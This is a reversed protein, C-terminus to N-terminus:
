IESRSQAWAYTVSSFLLRGWRHELIWYFQIRLYNLKLFQNLLLQNLNLADVSDKYALVTCHWLGMTLKVDSQIEWVSSLPTVGGGDRRPPCAAALLRASPCPRTSWRRQLRPQRQARPRPALGHTENGRSSCPRILRALPPAHDYWFCACMLESIFLLMCMSYICWTVAEGGWSGHM